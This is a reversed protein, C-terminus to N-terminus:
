VGSGPFADPLEYGDDTEDALIREAGDGFGENWVEALVVVLARQDEDLVGMWYPVRVPLLRALLETTELLRGDVTQVPHHPLM